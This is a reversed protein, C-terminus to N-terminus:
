LSKLDKKFEISHNNGIVLLSIMLVVSLIFDELSIFLQSMFNILNKIFEVALGNSYKNLKHEVLTSNGSLIVIEIILGTNLAFSLM